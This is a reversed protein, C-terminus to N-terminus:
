GRDGTMHRSLAGGVCDDVLSKSLSPWMVRGTSVVPPGSRDLALETRVCVHRLSSFDCRRLHKSVVRIAWLSGDSTTVGRAAIQRIHDLVSDGSRQVVSALVLVVMAFAIV